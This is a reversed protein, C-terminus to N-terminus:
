RAAQISIADDVVKLSELLRQSIGTSYLQAEKVKALQVAAAESASIGPSKFALAVEEHLRMPSHRLMEHNIFDIPPPAFVLDDSLLAAAMYRQVEESFPAERLGRMIGVGVILQGLSPKQMTEFDVTQDNFAAIVKEFAPWTDYARTSSKVLCVAMIKQKVSVNINPAGSVRLLEQWIAAPDWTFYEPGLARLLYLDLALPHSKWSSLFSRANIASRPLDTWGTSPEM